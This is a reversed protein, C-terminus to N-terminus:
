KQIIKIVVSNSTTNVPLSQEVTATFQPNELKVLAVFSTHASNKVVWGQQALTLYYQQEEFIPRTTQYTIEYGPQNNEFAVIQVSLNGSSSPLLALIEEPLQSQEFVQRSKIPPFAETKIVEYLWSIKEETTGSPPDPIISTKQKSPQITTAPKSADKLLWYFIGVTIAVLIGAILAIKFYYKKDPTEM